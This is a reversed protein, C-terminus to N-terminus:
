ELSKNSATKQLPKLVGGQEGRGKKAEVPMDSDRQFM